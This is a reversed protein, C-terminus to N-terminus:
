YLINMVANTRENNKMINGRMESEKLKMSYDPRKEECKGQSRMPM